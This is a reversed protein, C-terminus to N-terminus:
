TLSGASHDNHIDLKCSAKDSEYHFIITCTHDSNYCKEDNTVKSKICKPKDGNRLTAANVKFKCCKATDGSWIEITM